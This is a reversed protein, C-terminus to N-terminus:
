KVLGESCLAATDVRDLLNAAELYIGASSYLYSLQIRSRDVRSRNGLRDCLAINSYLYEIASDVQYPVYEDILQQNLMVRQDDSFETTELIKKLSRIRQERGAIYTERNAIVVDLRALEADLQSRAGGRSMSMLPFFAIMALSLKVFIKM